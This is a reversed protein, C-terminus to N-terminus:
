RYIKDSHLQFQDQMCKNTRLRSSITFLGLWNSVNVVVLMQAMMPEPSQDSDQPLGISVSQHLWRCLLKECVFPADTHLLAAESSRRGGSFLIKGIEIHQRGDGFTNDEDSCSVMTTMSVTAHLFATKHKCVFRVISSIGIQCVTHCTIFINKECSSVSNTDIKIHM